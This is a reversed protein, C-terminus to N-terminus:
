DNQMTFCHSHSADYMWKVLDFMIIKNPPDGLYCPNIIEFDNFTGYSTM